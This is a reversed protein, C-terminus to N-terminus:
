FALLVCCIAHLWINLSLTSGIYRKRDKRIKEPNKLIKLTELMELTEPLEDRAVDRSVLTQENEHGTAIAIDVLLDIEIHAGGNEFDFKQRFLQGRCKQDVDVWVGNMWGRTQALSGMAKPRRRLVPAQWAAKRKRFGPVGYVKVRRTSTLSLASEDETDM